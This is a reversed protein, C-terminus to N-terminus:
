AARTYRNTARAPIVRGGTEHGGRNRLAKRAQRAERVLRRQQAAEALEATRLQHLEYEFM